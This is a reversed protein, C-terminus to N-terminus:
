RDKKIFNEPARFGGRNPTSGQEFFEKYWDVTHRVADKWNIEPNYGFDNRAKSINPCRRSVSGPYTMANEYHGSYDYLSGIYKTLTEMNIEDDMGIHYIQGSSKESEMAGITGKVADDIYCFARTQDHGYIKFPSEKAKFFRESIHPIAHGFGMEPGIINQYRVIVCKYNHSKASHFFALEGHMKTIAYTWRPHKVDEICLAVTEPTPIEIHFLDSTGAYNESSSSFLLKKIPNRSIFDLTNMTLLSNIRIVEEPHELTRNVGVVAALMYIEDFNQNLRHFAQMDTFDDIVPKFRDKTSSNSALESWNSGEQIDASTVICDDSELLSSVINRGIFGGGGLVLIEKM